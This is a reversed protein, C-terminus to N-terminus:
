YEFLIMIQEFVFEAAAPTYNRYYQFVHRDVDATLGQMRAQLMTTIDRLRVDDELLTRHTPPLLALIKPRKAAAFTAEVMELTVSSMTPFTPSDLIAVCDM